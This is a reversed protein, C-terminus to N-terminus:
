RNRILHPLAFLPLVPARGKKILHSTLCAMDVQAQHSSLGPVHDWRERERDESSSEGRIQLCWDGVIGRWWGMFSRSSKNPNQIKDKCKAGVAMAKIVRDM